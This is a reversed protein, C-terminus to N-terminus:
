RPEILVRGGEGVEVHLDNGELLATGILPEDGLALVETLRDKGQWGLEFEHTPVRIRRGDALRRIRVGNPRGCLRQALDQPLAMDGWFGTDILFSVSEEGIELAVRPHGDRFHGEIM